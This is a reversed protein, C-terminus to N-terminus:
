IECKKSLKYDSANDNHQVTLKSNAQVVFQQFLENNKDQCITREIKKPASEDEDLPDVVVQYEKRKIYRKIVKNYLLIGVFAMTALSILSLTLMTDPISANIFRAPEFYIPLLASGALLGATLLLYTAVLFSMLLSSVQTEETKDELQQFKEQQKVDKIKLLESIKQNFKILLDKIENIKENPNLVQNVKIDVIDNVLCNIELFIRHYESSYRFEKQSDCNSRVYDLFNYNSLFDKFLFEFKINKFEASTIDKVDNIVKYAQQIILELLYKTKKNIIQNLQNLIEELKENDYEDFKVTALEKINNVGLINFVETVFNKGDQISPCETEQSYKAQKREEFNARDFASKTKDYADKIYFFSDSFSELLQIKSASVKKNESNKLSSCFQHVANCGLGPFVEQNEIDTKKKEM